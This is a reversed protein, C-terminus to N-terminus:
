LVCVDAFSVAQSVAYMCVVHTITRHFTEKRKESNLRRGGGANPCKGDGFITLAVVTGDM